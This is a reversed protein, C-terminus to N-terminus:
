TRERVRWRWAAHGMNAKREDVASVGRTVSPMTGKPCEILNHVAYGQDGGAGPARACSGPVPTSVSARARVKLAAPTARVGIDYRARAGTGRATGCAAGKIIYIQYEM